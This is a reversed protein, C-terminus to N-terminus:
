QLFAGVGFVAGALAVLVTWLPVTRGIADVPREAVIRASGGGRIVTLRVRPAPPARTLPGM